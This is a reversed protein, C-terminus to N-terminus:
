NRVRVRSLWSTAACLGFFGIAIGIIYIAVSGAGGVTAPNLFPYPYWHTFQARVLTYALWAVPFILLWMSQRLTIHAGRPWLLWEAVIFWPVAEHLVFNRWNFALASNADTNNKLLVAYVVGTVVMYLV